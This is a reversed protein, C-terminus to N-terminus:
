GNAVESNSRCFSSQERCACIRRSDEVIGKREERRVCTGGSQPSATAARLRPLELSASPGPTPWAPRSHRKALASLAEARSRQRQYEIHLVLPQDSCQERKGIGSSGSM